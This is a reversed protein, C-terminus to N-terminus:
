SAFKSVLRELEPDIGGYWFQGGAQAERELLREEVEAASMGHVKVCHNKVDYERHFRNICDEVLCAHRRILPDSGTGLLLHVASPDMPQDDDDQHRIAKKRALSEKAKRNRLASAKELGLHESRIHDQLSMKYTFGQGCGVGDWIPQGQEDLLSKCDGVDSQGCVWRKVKEHVSRVHADRNNSRTFIKDCDAFTCPYDYPERMKIPANDQHCLHIHKQLQTQTRFAHTSFSTHTSSAPTGPISATYEDMDVTAPSACSSSPFSSCSPEISPCISCIFTPPGHVDKLHRQYSASNAFGKNCRQGTEEDEEEYCIYPHTLLHVSNIHAQLTSKKRFEEKCDGRGDAALYGTCTYVTKEKSHADEHRKLRQTTAFRKGCGQFSCVHDRQDTHSQKFHRKLHYDRAFSKACGPEHCIFPREGTHTRVHEDRRCPRDFIRDCHEITCPYAQNRASTENARKTQKSDLPETSDAKNSAPEPSQHSIHLRKFDSVQDIDALPRKLPVPMAASRHQISREAFGICDTLRTFNSTSLTTM